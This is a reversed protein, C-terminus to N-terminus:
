AACTAARRMWSTRARSTFTSGAAPPWGRRSAATPRSLAAQDDLAPDHTLRELGTGNVRVRFIDASGYRESTFVVWEDDFSFSANYDRESGAVLKRPNAGDADAIMLM